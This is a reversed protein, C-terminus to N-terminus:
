DGHLKRLEVKRNCAMSGAAALARAAEPDAAQVLWFGAVYEPMDHLPGTTVVGAGGRNDIVVSAGPDELGWAFIWHGNARLMENFADIADMEDVTASGSTGDIVSILFRM